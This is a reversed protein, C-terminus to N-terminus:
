SGLDELLTLLQMRDCVPLGNQIMARDAERLCSLEIDTVEVPEGGRDSAFVGVYGDFDRLYYEANQAYVTYNEYVEDPPSAEAVPTITELAKSAIYGSSLALCVLLGLKIRLKM